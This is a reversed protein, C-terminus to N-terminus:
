NTRKSDYTTIDYLIIDWNGGGMSQFVVYNGYVKPNINIYTNSTIQTTTSTSKDYLYINSNGDIDSQYVIYNEYIDISDEDSSTAILAEESSCGYDEISCGELYYSDLDSDTCAVANGTITPNLIAILSLSIIIFILITILIFKNQVIGRKFFM